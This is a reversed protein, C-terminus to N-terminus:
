RNKGLVRERLKEAATKERKPATKDAGDGNPVRKKAAPKKVQKEERDEPKPFLAPFTEQIRLVEAEVGEVSNDELDVDINDMEVFKVIQEIQTKNLGLFAMEQGVHLKVLAPKFRDAQQRAKEEAEMQIRQEKTAHQKKLENLEKQLQRKEEIAKQRRAVARDFEEKSYTGKSAKKIEEEAEEVESEAEEVENETAELEEVTTEPNEEPNHNENSM